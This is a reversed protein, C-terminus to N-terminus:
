FEVIRAESRLQALFGNAFSELRSSQIFRTVQEASPGEGEVAPTRGCLMLLVLTQGNARTLATSVEGPDLKSLELAIDAPIEEPAKSGRELTEPAEGFAVGYLDDCTDVTETIRRARSLASDSRGGAIYYAAYEIAEFEPTPLETEAIDRLQFLAIAGEFPLPDTIEGTGLALIIPRLAAPLQTIPVWDMRGGNAASQTASFRRAADAFQSQTKLDSIRDAQERAAQEQGPRVPIIIESLLVRVSSPGSSAARARAVDDENVSIRPGFLAQTFNRWVLGAQVFDRFTARDVGAQSLSQILEDATLNVRGAFEEMGVEVQGEPLQFGVANAADVKLRDEILQERALTQPDGPARFVGLMRARQDLEYRTIALDNVTIVPDFQSQASGHQPTAFTLGATLILYVGIARLATPIIRTVLATLPFPYYTLKRM